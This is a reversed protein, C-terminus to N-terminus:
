ESAWRDEVGEGFGSGISAGVVFPRNDRPIMVHFPRQKLSKGSGPHRILGAPSSELSKIPGTRSYRCALGSSRLPELASMRIARQVQRNIHLCGLGLPIAARSLWSTQARVDRILGLRLCKPSAGTGNRRAVVRPGDGALRVRVPGTRSGVLVCGYTVTANCHVTM